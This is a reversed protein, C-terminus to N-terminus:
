RLQLPASLREIYLQAASLYPLSITMRPAHFVQPYHSPNDLHLFELYLMRLGAFLTIERPKLCYETKRLPNTWKVKRPTARVIVGKPTVLTKISATISCPPLCYKTLLPCTRLMSFIGALEPSSILIGETLHTRSSFARGRKPEPETFASTSACSFPLFSTMKLFLRLFFERLFFPCLCHRVTRLIVSM